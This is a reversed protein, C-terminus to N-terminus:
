RQKQATVDGTRKFQSFIRHATSPAIQLRMGIAKFSSEMALRQWIVRWYPSKRGPEASAM